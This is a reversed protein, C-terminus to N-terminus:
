RVLMQQTTTAADAAAAAAAAATAAAATATIAIHDARAWVRTTRPKRPTEPEDDDVETGAAAARALAHALFSSCCNQLPRLLLQRLQLLVLRLAVLLVLQPVLLLALLLHLQQMFLQPPPALIPPLPLLLLAHQRCAHTKGNAQRRSGAEGGRGQGRRGERMLRSTGTPTPYEREDM